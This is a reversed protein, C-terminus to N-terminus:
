GTNISAKEKALNKDWPMFPLWYVTLGRGAEEGVKRGGRRM